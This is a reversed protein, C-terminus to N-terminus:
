SDDFYADDKITEPLKGVVELITDLLAQLQNKSLPKSIIPSTNINTEVFEQHKKRSTGATGM